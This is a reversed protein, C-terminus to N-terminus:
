KDQQLFSSGSKDDEWAESEDDEWAEADALDSGSEGEDLSDSPIFEEGFLSEEWKEIAEEHFCVQSQMQIVDDAVVFDDFEYDKDEKYSDSDVSDIHAALSSAYESADGDSCSPDNCLPSEGWGYYIDAKQSSSPSVDALVTPPPSPTLLARVRTVLSGDTVATPPPSPTLLARVRRMKRRAPPPSSFDLPRKKSAHDDNVKPLMNEQGAADLVAGIGNMLEDFAALEVETPMPFDDSLHRNEAGLTDMIDDFLKIELDTPMPFDDSSYTSMITRRLLFFALSPSSTLPLLLAFAFFFSM